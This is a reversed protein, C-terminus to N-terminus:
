WLLDDILSYTPTSIQSQKLFYDWTEGTSYGSFLNPVIEGTPLLNEGNLERAMREFLVILAETYEEDMPISYARVMEKEGKTKPHTKKMEVFVIKKIPQGNLLKHRAIYAYCHGQLIYKLPVSSESSFKAVSKWDYLVGESTVLDPTGALEIESLPGTDKLFMRERREIFLPEGELHEQLWTLGSEAACIIEKIMDNKQEESVNGDVIEKNKLVEYAELHQIMNYAEGKPNLLWQEILYHVGSGIYFPAVFPMPEKLIYQRYFRQRDSSYASLASFSLEKIM